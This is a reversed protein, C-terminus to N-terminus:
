RSPGHYRVPGAIIDPDGPYPRYSGPRSSDARRPSSLWPNSVPDATARRDRAAQARQQEVWREARQREARQQEARQQETRQQEIRHLLHQRAHQLDAMTPGQDVSDGHGGNPKRADPHLRRLARRYAANVQERNAGRPVELIQHPDRPRHNGTM